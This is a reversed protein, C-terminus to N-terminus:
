PRSRRPRGTPPASSRRRSIVSPSAPCGAPAREREAWLEAATNATEEDFDQVWAYTRLFRDLDRIRRVARVKLLGRRVEYLTIAPVVFLADAADAPEDAGGGVLMSLMRLAHAHDPKRDDLLASLAVADLVLERERKM